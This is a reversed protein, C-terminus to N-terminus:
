PSKVGLRFGGPNVSSKHQGIKANLFLFIPSNKNEEGNIKTLLFSEASCRNPTKM